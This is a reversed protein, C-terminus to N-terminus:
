RYYLEGFEADCTMTNLYGWDVPPNGPCNYQDGQVKAGTVGLKFAAAYHGTDGDLQLGWGSAPKSGCAGLGYFFAHCGGEVGSGCYSKASPNLYPMFQSGSSVCVETKDRLAGLVAVSTSGADFMWAAFAHNTVDKVLLRTPTVAAPIRGRCIKDAVNCEQLQQGLPDADLPFPQLLWNFRTWGGGDITMDCLVQLAPAPGGPGDPDVPYVGDGLAPLTQHLQLCSTPAQCSGGVCLGESCDKPTLCALGPGCAPCSGGCDIDTEAGNKVGDSCTAAQCVGGQCVGSQCDSNAGCAAAAPCSPCSGGCDIDTETGNKVKDTCTPDQCLGNQCVGSTCDAAKQCVKGSSCPNCSGGCDIDTESGNKVKDTCGASSCKGDVCIGSTCDKETTCVQGDGCPGCSGGCDIDTESGNKVKDTCTPAACAGNQCSGSQCDSGVACSKDDACPLCAKGGCDVDTEFGDKQGDSCSPQKCTDKICLGSKCDVAV